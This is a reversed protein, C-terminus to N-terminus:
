SGPRSRSDAPRAPGRLSLLSRHVGHNNTHRRTRDARRVRVSRIGRRRRSSEHVDAGDDLGVEVGDVGQDGVLRDVGDGALAELVEERGPSVPVVPGPNGLLVALDDGEGDPPPHLLVVVREADVAQVVRAGTIGHRHPGFEDPVRQRGHRRSGVLRLVVEEQRVAPTILRLDHGTQLGPERCCRRGPQRPDDLPQPVLPQRLVPQRRPRRPQPELRGVVVREQVHEAPHDLAAEVGPCRPSDGLDTGLSGGLLIELDILRHGAFAGPPSERVVFGTLQHPERHRRRVVTTGHDPVEAYQGLM